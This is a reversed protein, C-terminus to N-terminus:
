PQLDVGYPVILFLTTSVVPVCQVLMLMIPTLLALRSRPRRVATLSVDKHHHRLIRPIEEWIRVVCGISVKLATIM